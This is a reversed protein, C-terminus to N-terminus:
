STSKASIKVRLTCEVNKLITKVNIDLPVQKYFTKLTPTKDTVLFRIQQAVATDEQVATGAGPSGMVPRTHDAPHGWYPQGLM